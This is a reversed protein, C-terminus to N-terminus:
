VAPNSGRFTYGNVKLTTLSNTGKYSLAYANLQVVLHFIVYIQVAVFALYRLFELYQCM